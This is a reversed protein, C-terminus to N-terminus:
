WLNLTKAEYGNPVALPAASGTDTGVHRLTLALPQKGGHERIEIPLGTLEALNFGKIGLGFPAALGEARSILKRVFDLFSGLTTLDENTLRLQAPTALCFEAATAGQRVVKLPACSFGAVTREKGDKLLRTAEAAKRVEAYRELPFGGLMTEWKARQKPPLRSIQAALGRLIPQLEEFQAALQNVRDETIPTFRRGQHDILVLRQGGSEYLMDLNPDGGLAKIMVSGDRIIVPQTVAHDGSTVQYDIVTAASAAGAAGLWGAALLFRPFRQAM